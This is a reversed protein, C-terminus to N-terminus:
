CAVAHQVDQPLLFALKQSIKLEWYCCPQPLEGLVALVLDQSFAQMGKVLVKM